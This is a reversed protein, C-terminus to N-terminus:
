IVTVLWAWLFICIKKKLTIREIGTALECVRREEAKSGVINEVDMGHLEDTCPSFLSISIVYLVGECDAGAQDRM